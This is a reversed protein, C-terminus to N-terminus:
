AALSQPPRDLRTKDASIEIVVLQSFAQEALPEPILLIPNSPLASSCCPLSHTCPDQQAKTQEHHQHKQLHQGAHDMTLQQAGNLSAQATIDNASHKHECALMGAQAMGQFSLSVLLFCTLLSRWVLRVLRLVERM